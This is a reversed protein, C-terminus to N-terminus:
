RHKTYIPLREMPVEIRITRGGAINAGADDVWVGSPLVVDRSTGPRVMPAVLIDTGLLFQDKIQEFGQGPFCYEMSRVIPNGTHASERALELILPVYKRRLSVARKVAALQSPGLIRWPAVSFQMMPMLAHIQASRVVLSQDMDPNDLFSLYDGGGIMDPCAFTYGALGETLMHPILMQLDEWTHFKDHLRQALPQGAMKWCARYENLPFRLGFRAYLECHRNPSAPTMSLADPPYFNMDGADFKFGDIGYESVLRDLQQDFWQVAAPNTFDLLLSYGNWWTISAPTTATEWTDEGQRRQMLLARRKMLDRVILAQDGSVFPCIWLMVKFGMAHLEDVMQRPQPFRGPHFDWLGYDEQWTDDIMIVGPEFGHEIVARAYRLVDTQNQNYTLEIWTNYQPRSFLHEDPLKGSAPFFRRAAEIRAEALTSGARGSEISGYASSVIIKGPHIEFHFPEESWVWLGQTGLLLPQLQNYQNNAYFDFGYGERFPMRHGEKIAGSYVQEGPLLEIVHSAAQLSPLSGLLLMTLITSKM